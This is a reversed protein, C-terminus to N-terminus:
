KLVKVEFDNFSIKKDKLSMLIKGQNIKILSQDKKISSLNLFSYFKKKIYNIM